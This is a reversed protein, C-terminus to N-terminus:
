RVGGRSIASIAETLAFVASEIAASAIRGYGIVLAPPAVHELRYSALSRVHIRRAALAGV